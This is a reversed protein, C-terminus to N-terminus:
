KKLENWAGNEKASAGAAAHRKGKAHQTTAALLEVLSM